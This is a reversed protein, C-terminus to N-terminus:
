PAPTPEGEGESKPALSGWATALALFLFLGDYFDFTEALASTFTAFSPLVLGMMTGEEEFARSLLYAFIFYKAIALGVMAWSSSVIQLAANRAGRGGVLVGGGTLVGVGMAGVAFERDTLVTAVAWLLAALLAGVGGGLIAGSLRVVGAAGASREAEIKATCSTCIGGAGAGAELAFGCRACAGASALTGGTFGDAANGM